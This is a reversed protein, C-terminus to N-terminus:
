PTEKRPRNLLQDWNGLAPLPRQDVPLRAARHLTLSTVQPDTLEPPAPSAITSTVTPSRGDTQAAKRAELAVMDATCAGV